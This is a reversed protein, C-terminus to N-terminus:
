TWRDGREGVVCTTGHHKSAPAHGYSALALAARAARESTVRQRVVHSPGTVPAVDLPAARFPSGLASAPASPVARPQVSVLEVRYGRALAERIIWAARGLAAEAAASPGDLQVAVQLHAVGTGDRETVMLQGAHATAKWHVRRRSDGRVYPRVSRYLDDGVPAHETMGFDVARPAPWDIAHPLPAPAVVVSSALRIRVRRASEVLGMPGTAVLDFTLTHVIGRRRPALVLLGPSDDRVLFRQVKPRAAPVLTVPRNAGIVRVTCTLPDGTTVVPAIALEVDTRRLTRRAVLADTAVVALVAVSAAIQARSGSFLWLLIGGIALAVLAVAFPRLKVYRRTAAPELPTTAPAWLGAGPM